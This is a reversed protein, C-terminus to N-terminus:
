IINYIVARIVKYMITKRNDYFMLLLIVSVNSKILDNKICKLKFPKFESEVIKIVQEIHTRYKKQIPHTMSSVYYQHITEKKVPNWIFINAMNRLPFWYRHQTMLTKFPVCTSFYCRPISPSEDVNTKM